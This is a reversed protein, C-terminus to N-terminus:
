TTMMWKLQIIENTDSSNYGEIDEEESEESDVDDDIDVNICRVQSSSAGIALTKSPRSQRMSYSYTQADESGSARAVDGWTLDDDGGFVLENEAEFNVGMEKVLWESHDIHDLSIPDIINRLDFRTRLVHNYKVYVLDNLRKHELRNKSHIENNTVASWYRECSVSSVTLSLVIIALKQLHTAPSRTARSRKAMPFGFQGEARTYLPLESVIKDQVEISPVLKQICAYLGNTVERCNEFAPDQYFYKPNLYHRAAHLPQHLQFEWRQDIIEFVDKYKASKGEFSKAIAEKARDIAEYIYGMVHNKENDVLQLSKFLPGM